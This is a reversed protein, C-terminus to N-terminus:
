PPTSIHAGRDASGPLRSCIRGDDRGSDNHHRILCQGIRHSEHEPIRSSYIRLEVSRVCEDCVDNQSTGILTRPLESVRERRLQDRLTRSSWHLEYRARRTGNARNTRWTLLSRGSETRLSRDPWLTRHTRCSRCPRSTGISDGARCSRSTRETISHSPRCTRGTGGTRITRVSRCSRLSSSSRYSRLSRSSREASRLTWSPRLASCTGCARIAAPYKGDVRDRRSEVVLERGVSRQRVQAPHRRSLSEVPSADQHLDIIRVIRTRNLVSGCYSKRKVSSRLRLDERSSRSVVSIYRLAQTAGLHDGVSRSGRMRDLELPLLRRDCWSGHIDAGTAIRVFVEHHRHVVKWLLRKDSM